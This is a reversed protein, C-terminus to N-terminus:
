ACPKTCYAVAATPMRVSYTTCYTSGAFSTSITSEVIRTVLKEARRRYAILDAITGIKLDHTAAFKLLDPLRAMTGDDNMIECIVGSPACGALRAIDVENPCVIMFEDGGIRAVFNSLGAIGRLLSAVHMLM